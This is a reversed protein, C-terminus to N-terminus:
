FESVASALRRLRSLRRRRVRLCAFRYTIHSKTELGGTGRWTSTNHRPSVEDWSKSCLVLSERKNSHAWAKMESTRGDQKDTASSSTTARVYGNAKSTM